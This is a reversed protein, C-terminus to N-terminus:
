GQRPTFQSLEYIGLDKEIECIKAVQGEFGAKGFLEREREEFRGGLERYEKDDVIKKFAPFLETNERAAHPRFMRVFEALPKQLAASDGKKVLELVRATTRRGAMHQSELIDVLDVLRGEGRLRSFCFQEELKHLYDEICRRVIVAARGVTGPDLEVGGAIRRLAEDYILLIRSLGGHGRMLAEVPSVEEIGAGDLWLEDAWSAQPLAAALGGALLSKLFQKRSSLDM